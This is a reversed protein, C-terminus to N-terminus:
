EEEVLESNLYEALKNLLDIMKCSLECSAVIDIYNTKSDDFDNPSSFSNFNNTYVLTIICYENKCNFIGNGNYIFKNSDNLFRIIINTDWYKSCDNTNINYYNTM